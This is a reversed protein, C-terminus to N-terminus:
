AQGAIRAAARPRPGNGCRARGRDASRRHVVTRPAGCHVASPDPRGACEGAAKPHAHASGALSARRWISGFRFVSTLVDYRSWFGSPRFSQASSFSRAGPYYTKAMRAETVFSARASAGTRKGIKPELAALAGSTFMGKVLVVSGLPKTSIKLSSWVTGWTATLM